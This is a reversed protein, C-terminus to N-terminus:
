NFSQKIFDIIGSIVSKVVPVVHAITQSFLENLDAGTALGYVAVCGLFILAFKLIDFM